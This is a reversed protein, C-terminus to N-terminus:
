CRPSDIKGWDSELWFSFIVSDVSVPVELARGFSPFEVIIRGSRIRKRIFNFLQSQNQGASHFAQLLSTVTALICFTANEILM